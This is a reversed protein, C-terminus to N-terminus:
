DCRSCTQSTYKPNILVVQSGPEEAKNRATNVFMGWSADAISKALGHNNNQQMGKSNLDEFAVVGFRNVLKSSEQHIFNSRKNAIREHVRQVM